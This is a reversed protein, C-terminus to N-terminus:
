NKKTILDRYFLISTRVRINPYNQTFPLVTHPNKKGVCNPFALSVLLFKYKIM